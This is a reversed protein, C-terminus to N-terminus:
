LEEKALLQLEHEAQIVESIERQAITNFVKEVAENATDVTDVDIIDVDDPYGPDGNGFTHVGQIIVEKSILFKEDIVSIYFEQLAL